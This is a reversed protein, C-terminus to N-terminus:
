NPTIDLVFISAVRESQMLGFRIALKKNLKKMHTLAKQFSANWDFLGKDESHTILLTNSYDVHTRQQKYLGWYDSAAEANQQQKKGACGHALGSLHESLSSRLRDPAKQLAMSKLKLRLKVVRM